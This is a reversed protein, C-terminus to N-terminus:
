VGNYRTRAVAMAPFFVDAKSGGFALERWIQGENKDKAGQGEPRLGGRKTSLVIEEHAEHEEHNDWIKTAALLRAPDETDPNRVKGYTIRYSKIYRCRIASHLFDDTQATQGIGTFIITFKKAAV